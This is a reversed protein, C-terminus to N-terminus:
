KLSDLYDFIHWYRNEPNAKDKENAQGQNKKKDRLQGASSAGGAGATVPTMGSMLMEQQVEMVKDMSIDIAKQNNKNENNFIMVFTSETALMEVIDKEGKQCAIHLATNNQNYEMADLKAGMEILTKAIAKHGRNVAIMLPTFGDSTTEKNFDAAKEILLSVVDLNEAKNDIAYHLAIRSDSDGHNVWADKSLIESVLEIFGKSAAIM